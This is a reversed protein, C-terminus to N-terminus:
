KTLAFVVVVLTVPTLLVLFQVLKKNPAIWKVLRIYLEGLLWGCMGFLIYWIWM